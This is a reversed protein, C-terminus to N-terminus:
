MPENHRYPGWAKRVQRKDFAVTEGASASCHARATDGHLLRERDREAQMQLRAQSLKSPFLLENAQNLDSPPCPLLKNPM